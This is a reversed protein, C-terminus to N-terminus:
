YRKQRISASFIHNSFSSGDGQTATQNIRQHDNRSVIREIIEGSGRVLRYRGSVEDNMIYKEYWLKNHMMNKVLSSISVISHKIPM